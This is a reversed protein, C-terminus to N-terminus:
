SPRVSITLEAGAIRDGELCNSITVLGDYRAAVEKMIVSGIGLSVRLGQGSEIRRTKRFQAFEQLTETTLGPGDDTIRIVYQDQQWSIRIRVRSRAFSLANEIGNRFLRELLWRHGRIAPASKVADDVQLSIQMQPQRHRSLETIQELIETPRVVDTSDAYRPEALSALTLLDEVLREFYQGEALSMEISRQIQPETMQTREDRLTELFTKMSAIPTRLDHALRQLIQMRSAEAQRIRGVLKEIEDAMHNFSTVLDSLEDMKQTPLRASLNGSKIQALVAEATRAREKYSSFLIRIALGTTVTVGLFLCLLIMPLPNPPPGGPGRHPGPPGGRAPPGKMRMVLYGQGEGLFIVSDGPPKFLGNSKVVTENRALQEREDQSLGRIIEHDEGAHEFFFPGPDENFRQIVQEPPLGSQRILNRFLENPPKFSREREISHLLFSVGVSILIGMGIVALSIFYHRRFLPNGIM